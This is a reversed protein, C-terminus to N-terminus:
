LLVFEDMSSRKSKQRGKGKPPIHVEPDFTLELQEHQDQGSGEALTFIPYTNTSSTLATTVDTCLTDFDRRSRAYFGLTCSPDMRHFPLKRVTKCHFTEIPFNPRSVDVAPQCFHPDLYLLQDDAQFGVFYLSHKPKGGMIGVCCKLELLRKVHPVYVPNLTEGGLRVPVLIIVSRFRTSLESQGEGCLRMVDGIYVTCDQAVYVALDSLESAAVAKRLLHAAVSPGYWDGARQGSSRGLEVLKHLGFPASPTDGFWAVLRRHGGEQGDEDVDLTAGESRRRKGVRQSRGLGLMLARSHRLELDDRTQHHAGQWMWGAPLTHLKLAQAFLMQASRLTCGWGSDSTLSSGHLSSFGRRYTMWFLSSFVSRFLQKEDERSLHYTHGLMCVPSNKSLRSKAKLTWGGYKVSNWASVLRSRLRAKDKVAESSHTCDSPEPHSVFEFTELDETSNVEEPCASTMM